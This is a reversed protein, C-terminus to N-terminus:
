RIGTNAHSPLQAYQEEGFQPSAQQAEDQAQRLQASRRLDDTIRKRRLAEEQTTELEGDM